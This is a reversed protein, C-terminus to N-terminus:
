FLGMHCFTCMRGFVVPLIYVVVYHYRKASVISSGRVLTGRYYNKMIVWLLKCTSCRHYQLLFSFCLVGCWLGPFLIQNLSPQNVLSSYLLVKKPTDLPFNRQKTTVDFPIWRSRSFTFVICYICGGLFIFFSWPKCPRSAYIQWKMVLRVLFHLDMELNIFFPM